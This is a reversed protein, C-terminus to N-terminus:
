FGLRTLPLITAAQTAAAQRRKGWQSILVLGVVGAAVIAFALAYQKRHSMTLIPVGHACAPLASLPEGRDFSALHSARCNGHSM